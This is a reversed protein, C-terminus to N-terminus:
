AESGGEESDEDEAEGHEDDHDQDEEFDDPEKPRPKLDPEGTERGAHFEEAALLLPAWRMYDIRTRPDEFFQKFDGPTYASVNFLKDVHVLVSAPLWKERLRGGYFRERRQSRRTWSFTARGGRLKEVRAIRGPGPNNRYSPNWDSWDRDYRSREQTKKEYAAREQKCWETYQGMVWSGETISERLRAAYSEFDPAPGATVARDAEYVLRVSRNFSTADWMKIPPHPHLVHSRDFLGQILVAIRNHEELDMAIKAQADDFYVNSSDFPHYTDTTRKRWLRAHPDITLEDQEVRDDYEAKTIIDGEKTCYLADGFSFKSHERDPYLRSGFKIETTVRWLQDGNRIYLFTAEDRQQLLVRVFSSVGEYAHAKRRVRFAVASRPFPFLRDFHETSGVWADFDGLSDFTIGGAVYYAIAEEDMFRLGQFVHLPEAYAAPSGDRVMEADESLGCYLDVAFLRRDIADVQRQLANNDAKLPIARAAMWRGMEKGADKMREYLSPLTEKVRALEGKYEDAAKNGVSVALAQTAPALQRGSLGIEGMLASVMKSADELERRWFAVGMSIRADADHVRTCEDHFDDFHIRWSHGKVSEVKAYNSGVRTVCVLVRRTVSVTEWHDESTERVVETKVVPGDCDFFDDSLCHPDSDTRTVDESVEMEYWEGVEPTDDEPEIEEAELARKKLDAVHAEL